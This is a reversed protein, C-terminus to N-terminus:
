YQQQFLKRKQLANQEIFSIQFSQEFKEQLQVEYAIHLNLKRLVATFLPPLLQVESLPRMDDHTLMLCVRRRPKSLFNFCVQLDINLENNTKTSLLPFTNLTTNSSRQSVFQQTKIKHEM